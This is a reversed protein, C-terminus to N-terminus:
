RGELREGSLRFYLVTILALVTLLIVSHTASWSLRFHQFGEVYIKIPLTMTAGAPGGQTMLWIPPFMNFLWMTLMFTTVSLAPLIHPLVIWRLRAWAGAGDVRGAELTTAPVTQIAALMMIAMFPVWRWANVVIVTPMATEADLFSVPTTVLRLRLLLANLVGVVPDLIWRWMLTIVIVPFM